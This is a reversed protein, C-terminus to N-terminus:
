PWSRQDAFAINGCLKENGVVKIEFTKRQSDWNLLSLKQAEHGHGKFLLHWIEVYSKM